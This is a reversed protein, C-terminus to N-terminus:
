KYTGDHCRKAMDTHTRPPSIAAIVRGIRGGTSLNGNPDPLFIRVEDFLFKRVGFSKFCHACKVETFGYGDAAVM